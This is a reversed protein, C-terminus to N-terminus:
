KELIVHIIYERNDLYELQLADQADLTCEVLANKYYADRVNRFYADKINKFIEDKINKFIAAKIAKLQKKPLTSTSSFVSAGEVKTTSARDSDTYFREEKIGKYFTIRDLNILNFYKMLKIAKLVKAMNDCTYYHEDSNFKISYEIYTKFPSEGGCTNVLEQIDEARKFKYENHLLVNLAKIFETSYTFKDSYCILKNQNDIFSKSWTYTTQVEPDNDLPDFRNNSADYIHRAYKTDVKYIVGHYLINTVSGVVGCANTVTECYISFDQNYSENYLTTITKATYTNCGNDLVHIFINEHHSNDPLRMTKPILQYDKLNYQALCGIRLTIPEGFYAKYCRDSGFYDSYIEEFELQEKVRKRMYSIATGVDEPTHFKTVNYSAGPKIISDVFETINTCEKIWHGKPQEYVCVITLSYNLKELKRSLTCLDIIDMQANYKGVRTGYFVRKEKITISDGKTTGHLNASVYFPVDSDITIKASEVKVKKNVYRAKLATKLQEKLQELNIMKFEPKIIVDFGSALPDTTVLVTVNVRQVKKKTKKTKEM